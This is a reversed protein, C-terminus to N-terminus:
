MLPKLINHLLDIHGQKWERDYATICQERIDLQYEIEFLVYMGFDYLNYM